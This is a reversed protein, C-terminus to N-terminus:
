SVFKKEETYFDSAQEESMFYDNLAWLDEASRQDSGDMETTLM